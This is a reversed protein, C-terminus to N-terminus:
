FIEGDNAHSASLYSDMGARSGHYSFQEFYPLETEEAISSLETHSDRSNPTLSLPVQAFEDPIYKTDYDNKVDPKWPPPIQFIFRSM